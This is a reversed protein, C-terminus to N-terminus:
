PANPNDISLFPIPFHNMQYINWPPGLVLDFAHDIPSPSEVVHLLMVPLMKKRRCEKTDM